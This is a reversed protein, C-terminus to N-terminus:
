GASKLFLVGLPPLNLALSHYRGHAGVPASNVGGFNGVGSGGYLTADSNLRETWYGARPVGIRYSM